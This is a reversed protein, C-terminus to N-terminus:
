RPPRKFTHASRSIVIGKLPLDFEGIAQDGDERGCAWLAPAQDAGSADKKGEGFPLDAIM